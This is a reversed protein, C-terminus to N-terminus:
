DISMWRLDLDRIELGQVKENFLGYVASGSGSMSAYWAGANYLQKKIDAIAPYVPFLFEEFDNRLENRWTEKPQSIITTLSKTPQQPKVKKYADATNIHIDPKVIVVYNGKLSLPIVSLVEGKGTALSPKNRIFFACDAGLTAALQALVDDACNLKFLKNLATLMFAADASGGGLGAGMPILKHLYVDVPPLNYKAALLHYAKSCLNKDPTVNTLLGAM